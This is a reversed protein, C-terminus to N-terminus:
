TLEEIQESKRNILVCNFAAPCYKELFLQSITEVFDQKLKLM